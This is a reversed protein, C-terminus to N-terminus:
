QTHINSLYQRIKTETAEMATQLKKINQVYDTHSFSTTSTEILTSLSYVSELRLNAAIGRITHANFIIQEVHNNEVAKTLEDLLTVSTTLYKELLKDMIQEAFPLAAKIRQASFHPDDELVMSKETIILNDSDNSPLFHLLVRNVEKFDLPKTLYENFGLALYKERDGAMANATLAIIPTQIDQYRAIKLVKVGDLNPMNIDM